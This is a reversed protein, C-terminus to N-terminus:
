PLDRVGCAPAQQALSVVQGDRCSDCGARRCTGNLVILHSWSSSLFRTEMRQGWLPSCSGALVLSGTLSVRLEDTKALSVTEAGLHKQRHSELAVGAQLHPGYVVRGTRAAASARGDLLDM